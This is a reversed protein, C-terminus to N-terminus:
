EVHVERDWYLMPQFLAFGFSNKAGKRINLQQGGTLLRGRSFCFLVIIRTIIENRKDFRQVAKRFTFFRSVKHNHTVSMHSSELEPNSPNEAIGKMPAPFYLGVERM